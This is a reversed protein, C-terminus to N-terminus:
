LEDEADMREGCNTIVRLLYLNRHSGKRRQGTYTWLLQVPPGCPLGSAFWERLLGIHVRFIVPQDVVDRDADGKVRHRKREPHGCGDPQEFDSRLELWFREGPILM